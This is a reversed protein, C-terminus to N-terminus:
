GDSNDDNNAHFDNVVVVVVVILVVIGFTYEGSFFLSDCIVILKEGNKEGIRM